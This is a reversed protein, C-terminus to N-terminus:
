VSWAEWRISGSFYAPGASDQILIANFRKGIGILNNQGSFTGLTNRYFLGLSVRNDWQASTLYAKVQYDEYADFAPPAPIEFSYVGNPPYAEVNDEFSTTETAILEGLVLQTQVIPLSSLYFLSEDRVLDIAEFRLSLSDAGFRCPILSNSQTDYYFFTLGAGYAIRFFSIFYSSEARTLTRDGINWSRLPRPRDFDRREWGGESKEIQTQFTPGGITGIDYGLNLTLGLSPPIIPAPLELGQAVRIEVVSLSQLAFLVEGGLPDVAEFRFSILDQEFRVPTDFFGSVAIAQGEEPPDAFSLLGNTLNLTYGSSQVVNDIMVVMGTVPKTIPRVFSYGDLYYRKFLQYDTTLGDGEGIVQNIAYDAWDRFRFGQYSGKRAQHFELFYDLEARNILRDGINWRGLPQQWRILRQEEIGTKTIATSFTAGGNTGYDIGLELLEEAFSM